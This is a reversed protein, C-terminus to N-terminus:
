VTRVVKGGESTNGMALNVVSLVGTIMGAGKEQQVYVRTLADAFKRKPNSIIILTAGQNTTIM